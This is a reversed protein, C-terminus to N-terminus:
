SNAAASDAPLAADPTGGVMTEYFTASQNVTVHGDKNIACKVDGVLCRNRGTCLKEIIDAASEYDPTTYQLTFSRRIQDGNRTVNAFSVTYNLTSSLIADLFAVEERSNNYSGMWTMNDADALADMYQQMWTAYRNTVEGFGVPDIGAALLLMDWGFIYIMGSMLSPYIGAKVGIYFIDLLGGSKLIAGYSHYAPNGETMFADWLEPHYLGASPLNALVCGFAIGVLLLPEFKKVIGLYLLVCGIIIMVLNQWGGAMFAAFLRAFGSTNWLNLLIEGIDIM